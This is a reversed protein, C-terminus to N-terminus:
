QFMNSPLENRVEIVGPRSAEPVITRIADISHRVVEAIPASLEPAYRELKKPLLNEFITTSISIGVIRGSCPRGDAFSMSQFVLM